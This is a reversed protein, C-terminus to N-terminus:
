ADRRYLVIQTTFKALEAVVVALLVSNSMVWVGAGHHMTAISVLAGVLLVRFGVRAAKLDILQEREDKPTRADKPSSIAIVIHLVIEAVVLVLILYFFRSPALARDDLGLLVRTFYWFYLGFVTVFCTLSIWASKERFSM